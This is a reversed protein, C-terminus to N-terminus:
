KHQQTTKATVKEPAGTLRKLRKEFLRQNSKEMKEVFGKPSPIFEDNLPQGALLKCFRDHAQDLTPLKSLQKSFNESLDIVQGNVGSVYRFFYVTM